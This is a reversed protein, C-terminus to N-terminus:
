GGHVAFAAWSSPHEFPRDPGEDVAIWREKLRALRYRRAAVEEDGLAKWGGSLREQELDQIMTQIRGLVEERSLRRLRQCAQQLAEAPRLPTSSLMGEYAQEMLWATSLDDVAWLTAIVASAGCSLFAAPFGFHEEDAAAPEVQGTECASACVVCGRKLGLRWTWVDNLTLRECDVQLAGLDRGADLWQPATHGQPHALLLSSDFPRGPYYFAHTALELFDAEPTNQLLWPLSARSGHAFRNRGPFRHVIADVELAAFVLSGDPNAIATVSPEPNRRHEEALRLCRLLSAASPAFSIVFRDGLHRREAAAEPLPAAHLPFLALLSDPVFIVRAVALAELRRALPAALLRGLDDLVSRMTAQWVERADEIMAENGAQRALTTLWYAAMWGLSGQRGATVLEALHDISFPVGEPCAFLLLLLDTRSLGPLPLVDDPPLDEQSSQPHVLYAETGRNPEDTVHFYVITLDHDRAARCLDAHPPPRFVFNPDRDELEHLRGNAQELRRTLEALRTQYDHPPLGRRELDRRESRTERLEHVLCRYEEQERPTLGTPARDGRLVEQRLGLAKGAELVTVADRYRGDERHLRALTRTSSVVEQAIPRGDAADLFTGQLYGLVSQWCNAAQRRNETREGRIRERYADGLNNQTGAWDIPFAECTHVELAARHAAIAAELNEAPEGRIRDSYASGLNNQTIAWEVPFAARTRVELAARFAAIAAELNDARDGRIRESYASGLNSLIRAWEVPFAARTHVELAANFAALAAELNDARDGRVRERYANGLNNRVTAWQVPYDARTYVQLAANFAVLAAELNDGRDGRIRKRYANGLNNRVTAWDNPFAARTCVELAARFAAIAAELNDARDGLPSQVLAPGLTGQLAAWVAPQGKRSVLALARQLLEIRQPLDHPQAPENIRRLILSLEDV